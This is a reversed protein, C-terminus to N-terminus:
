QHMSNGSHRALATTATCGIMKAGPAATQAVCATTGAEEALLFPWDKSDAISKKTTPQLSTEEPDAAQPM